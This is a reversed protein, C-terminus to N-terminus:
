AANHIVVIELRQGCTPCQLSKSTVGGPPKRKKWYLRACSDVFYRSSDQLIKHLKRFTKIPFVITVYRSLLQRAFLICMAFQRKNM